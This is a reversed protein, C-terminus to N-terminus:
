RGIPNPSPCPWVVVCSLSLSPLVYATDVCLNLRVSLTTSVGGPDLVSVSVFPHVLVTTTPLSGWSAEVHM